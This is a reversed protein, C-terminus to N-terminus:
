KPASQGSTELEQKTCKLVQSENSCLNTLSNHHSTLYNTYLSVLDNNLADNSDLDIDESDTYFIFNLTVIHPAHTYKNGGNFTM